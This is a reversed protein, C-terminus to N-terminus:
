IQSVLAVEVFEKTVQPSLMGVKQNEIGQPFCQLFTTAADSMASHKAFLKSRYGALPKEEGRLRWNFTVM